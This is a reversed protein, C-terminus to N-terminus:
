MQFNKKQVIKFVELAMVPNYTEDFARLWLIHPIESFRSSFHYNELELSNPIM